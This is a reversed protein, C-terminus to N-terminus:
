KQATETAIVERSRRGEKDIDGLLLLGSSHRTTQAALAASINATGDSSVIAVPRQVPKGKPDLIKPRDDPMKYLPCMMAAYHVHDPLETVNGMRREGSKNFQYIPNWQQEKARAAVDGGAPFEMGPLSGIAPWSEVWATWGGDPSPKWGFGYGQVSAVSVFGKNFYIQGAPCSSKGDPLGWPDQRSAIIKGQATMAEDSWEGISYDVAARAIPTSMIHILDAGPGLVSPLEGIAETMSGFRKEFGIIRRKPIKQKGM